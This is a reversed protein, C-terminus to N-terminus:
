DNQYPIVFIGEGVDLRISLTGREGADTSMMTMPVDYERGKRYYVCRDAHEFVLSVDNQSCWSPNDANVVWYGEAGDEPNKMCGILTDRTSDTELLMGGEYGGQVMHTNRTRSKRIMRCGQWDFRQFVHDFKLIEDNVKQVAYYIETKRYGSEEGLDYDVMASRQRAPGDGADYHVWFTYYGLRKVGFALASYVQWRMDNYLPARYVIRCRGSDYNLMEDLRQSQMTFTVPCGKEKGIEAAIELNRYYSPAIGTEYILSYYDVSIEGTAEAASELYQRYVSDKSKEEMTDQGFSRLSGYMPLMSAFIDLDPKIARIEDSRLYDVIEKVRGLLQYSPEDTLMVGWFTEPFYEQVTQIFHKLAAKEKEGFPCKGHTMDDFLEHMTPYVGLGHKKAMCMYEYLNSKEFDPEEVFGDKTLRKGFFADGEPMLFSLGSAKYDEFVDDRIYSPFGEEPDLPHAGYVGNFYRKGARRPGIYATMPIRRDDEYVKKGM